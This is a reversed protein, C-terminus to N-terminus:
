KEKVILKYLDQKIHPNLNSLDLVLTQVRNENNLTIQKYARSLLYILEEYKEKYVDEKNVLTISGYRKTVEDLELYKGNEWFTIDITKNIGNEIVNAPRKAEIIKFDYDINKEEDFKKHHVFIRGASHISFNFNNTEYYHSKTGNGYVTLVEEEYQGTFRDEIVVKDHIQLELKERM